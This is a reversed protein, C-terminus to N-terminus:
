LEDQYKHLFNVPMTIKDAPYNETRSIFFRTAKILQDYVLWLRLDLFVRYAKEKQEHRPYFKFWSEYLKRIEQQSKAKLQFSGDLEQQNTKTIETTKTNEPLTSENQRLGSENQLPPSEFQLMPSENQLVDRCKSDGQNMKFCGQILSISKLKKVGEPNITYWPTKDSKYKNYNGIEILRQELLSKIARQITSDSFVNCFFEEFDRSSKYTWKRGDKFNSGISIWFELQLFIISQLLGIQRALEPSFRPANPNNIIFLRNEQFKNKSM